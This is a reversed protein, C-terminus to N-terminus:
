LGPHCLLKREALLVGIRIWYGGLSPVGTDSLTNVGMLEHLKLSSCWPLGCLMVELLSSHLRWELCVCVGLCACSRCTPVLVCPEPAERGGHVTEVACEVMLSAVVSHWAAKELQRAGGLGTPQSSGGLATDPMKGMGSLKERLVVRKRILM